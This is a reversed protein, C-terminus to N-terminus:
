HKAKINGFSRNGAPHFSGGSVRVRTLAPEGKKTIVPLGNGRHIEEGNGRNGKGHEVAEKDIFTMQFPQEGFVDAVVVFVARMKAERLLCWGASNGTRRGTADHRLWPQSSSCWVDDLKCAHSPASITLTDDM